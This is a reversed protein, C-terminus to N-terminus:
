ILYIICFKNMFSAFVQIFRTLMLDIEVYICYSSLLKALCCLAANQLPAIQHKFYCRSKGNTNCTQRPSAFKWRMWAPNSSTCATGMVTLLDRSSKKKKSCICLLFSSRRAAGSVLGRSRRQLPARDRSGCVRHRASLASLACAVRRTLAADLKFLNSRTRM